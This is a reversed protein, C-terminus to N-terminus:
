LAIRSRVEASDRWRTLIGKCAIGTLADKCKPRILAAARVAHRQEAAQVSLLGRRLDAYFQM